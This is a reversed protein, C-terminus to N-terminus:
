CWLGLRRCFLNLAFAARESASATIALSGGFHVLIVAVVAVLYGSHVGLRGDVFEVAVLYDSHVTRSRCFMLM